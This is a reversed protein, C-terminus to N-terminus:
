SARHALATHRKARLRHFIYCPFSISVPQFGTHVPRLHARGRQPGCRTRVTGQLRGLALPGGVGVEESFLCSQERDSIAKSSLTQWIGLYEDYERRSRKEEPRRPLCGAAVLFWFVNVALVLGSVCTHDGEDVPEGHTAMPSRPLQWRLRRSRCRRSARLTRLRSGWPMSPLGPASPASSPPAPDRAGGRLTFRPQTHFWNKTSSSYMPM